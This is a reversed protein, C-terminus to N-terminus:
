STTVMEFRYRKSLNDLASVASNNLTVVGLRQDKTWGEQVSATQWGGFQIHRNWMLGSNGTVAMPRVDALERDLKMGALHCGSALLLTVVLLVNVEIKPVRGMAREM